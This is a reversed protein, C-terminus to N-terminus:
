PLEKETVKIDADGKMGNFCYATMRFSTEHYFYQFVQIAKVGGNNRCMHEAAGLIAVPVDAGSGCGVLLTTLVLLIYKM